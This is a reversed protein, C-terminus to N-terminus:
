EHNNLNFNTNHKFAYTTTSSSAEPPISLKYSCATPGAFGDSIL